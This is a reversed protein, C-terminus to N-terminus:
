GLNASVHRRSILLMMLSLKLAGSSNSAASVALCVGDNDPSHLLIQVGPMGSPYRLGVIVIPSHGIM